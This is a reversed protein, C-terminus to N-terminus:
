QCFQSSEQADRRSPTRQNQNCTCTCSSPPAKQGDPDEPDESDKSEGTGEDDESESESESEEEIGMMNRSSAFVTKRMNDIFENEIDKLLDQSGNRANAALKTHAFTDRIKEVVRNELEYDYCFKECLTFHMLTLGAMVSSFCIFIPTFQGKSYRTLICEFVLTGGLSGVFFSIIVMISVCAKEWVDGQKGKMVRTLAMKPPVKVHTTLLHTVIGDPHVMLYSTIMGALIAMPTLFYLYNGTCDDGSMGSSCSGMVYQIVDSAVGLTICSPVVFLKVVRDENKLWFSVGDYCAGGCIFLAILAATFAMEETNWQLTANALILTNGTMMTFFRRTLNYCMANAFAFSFAFGSKISHLVIKNNSPLAQILTRRALLQLQPRLRLEQSSKQPAM